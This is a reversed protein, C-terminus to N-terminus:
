QIVLKPAGAGVRADTTCCTFGTHAVYEIKSGAFDMASVVTELAELDGVGGRSEFEKSPDALRLQELESSAASEDHARQPITGRPARAPPLALRRHEHHRARAGSVDLSPHQRGRVLRASRMRALCPTEFSKCRSPM